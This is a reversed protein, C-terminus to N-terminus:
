HEVGGGLTDGRKAVADARGRHWRGRLKVHLNEGAYRLARWPNRKRAVRRPYVVTNADARAYPEGSDHRAEILTSVVAFFNHEEMVRRRAERLAPLRQTYADGEIAQKITRLSSEFDNLDIRIYSDDPFYDNTNPCGAYFPLCLALFPDALKETWHHPARHNEIALHYKYADLGEAKDVLERNGWGYIDLEPMAAHLQHTFRHRDRHLTHKQQKESCLTSITKTKPAPPGAAMDEYSRHQLNRHRIPWGYFWKLAPQSRVADRHRLAWPEQSTLVTGFQNLFASGYTKISSPETTVLLTRRAPCALLEARPLDEYVVLWDYHREEADIVFRCRGWSPEGGPFQRQWGADAPLKVM